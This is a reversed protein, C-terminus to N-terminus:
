CRSAELWHLLILTLCDWPLHEVLLQRPAHPCYRANLQVIKRTPECDAGAYPVQKRPPLVYRVVLLYQASCHWYCSAFPCACSLLIVCLCGSLFGHRLSDSFGYHPSFAKILVRLDLRDATADRLVLGYAHAQM